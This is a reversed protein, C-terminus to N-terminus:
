NPIIFTSTLMLYFIHLQLDVKFNMGTGCRTITNSVTFYNAPLGTSLKFYLFPM